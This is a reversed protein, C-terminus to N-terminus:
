QKKVRHEEAIVISRLVQYATELNDNVINYDYKDALGIEKKSLEIRKQFSEPTETKRKALRKSLEEFSPPLVFIHCAPYIKRIKLAGQTDIVLFVHKGSNLQKEVAERSTGYYYGYLDVFELFDNEQIKKEFEERSIFNYHIGNIEDERPERTTYSISQVICSFESTLRHILTTKGTGAPASLIFLLGRKLNGLEKEM